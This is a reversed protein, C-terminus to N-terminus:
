PQLEEEQVYPHMEHVFQLSTCIRLTIVSLKLLKNQEIKDQNKIYSCSHNKM